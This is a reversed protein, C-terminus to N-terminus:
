IISLTKRRTSKSTKRVSLVQVVFGPPTEQPLFSLLVNCLPLPASVEQEPGKRGDQETTEKDECGGM